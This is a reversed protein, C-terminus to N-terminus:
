QSGRQLGALDFGHALAGGIVGDVNLKVRKALKVDATCRVGRDVGSFGARCTGEVTDLIVRLVLARHALNALDASNPRGAAPEPQRNLRPLLLYLPRRLLRTTPDYKIASQSPSPQFKALMTHLQHFVFSAIGVGCKLECM